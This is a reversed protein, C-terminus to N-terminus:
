LFVSYEWQPSIIQYAKQSWRSCFISRKERFLHPTPLPFGRKGPFSAFFRIKRGDSFGSKEFFIYLVTNKGIVFVKEGTKC